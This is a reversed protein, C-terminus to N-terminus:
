RIITTTSLIVRLIARIIFIISRVKLELLMSEAVADDLELSTLSTAAANSATMETIARVRRAREAKWTTSPIALCMNAFEKMSISTKNEKSLSVFLDTTQANTLTDLGIKHLGASFTDYTINYDKEDVVIDRGSDSPNHLSVTDLFYYAIAKFSTGKEKHHTLYAQMKEMATADGDLKLTDL